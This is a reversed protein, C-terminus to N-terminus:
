GGLLNMPIMQPAQRGMKLGPGLVVPGQRTLQTRLRGKRVEFLVFPKSAAEFEASVAIEGGVEHQLLAGQQTPLM